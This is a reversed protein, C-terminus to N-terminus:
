QYIIVILYILSLDTYIYIYQNLYISCSFFLFSKQKYNKNYSGFHVLVEDHLLCRIEIALILGLSKHSVPIFLTAIRLFDLVKVKVFLSFIACDSILWCKRLYLKCLITFNGAIWLCNASNEFNRDLLFM